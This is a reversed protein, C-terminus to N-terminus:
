LIRVRPYPLQYPQAAQGAVNCPETKGVLLELEIRSVLKLDLAPFLQELPQPTQVLLIPHAPQSPYGSHEFFCGASLPLSSICTLRQPLNHRLRSNRVVGAVVLM